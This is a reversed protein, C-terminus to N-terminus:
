NGVPRGVLPFPVVEAPGVVKAFAAEITCEVGAPAFNLAVVGGLDRALSREVLTTGFGRRTPPSVVPGGREIWTLRLRSVRDKKIEWRIEVSGHAAAPSLAGYKVANTTLEHLGMALALAARPRLWIAPGSVRFRGEKRGDHPALVATVVDDLSAKAWGERTLVDHASALALM